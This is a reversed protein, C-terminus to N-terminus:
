SFLEAFKEREMQLNRMEILTNQYRERFICLLNIFAIIGPIKLPLVIKPLSIYM